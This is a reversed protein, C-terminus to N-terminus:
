RAAGGLILGAGAPCIPPCYQGNLSVANFFPHGAQSQHWIRLWGELHDSKPLRDYKCLSPVRNGSDWTPLGRVVECKPLSRRAPHM